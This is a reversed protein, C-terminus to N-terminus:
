VRSLDTPSLEQQLQAKIKNQDEDAAIYLTLHQDTQQLKPDAASRLLDANSRQLTIWSGKIYGRIERLAVRDLDVQAWAPVTLLALVCAILITTSQRRNMKGMEGRTGLSWNPFTM